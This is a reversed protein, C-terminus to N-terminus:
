LREQVSILMRCYHVFYNAFQGYGIEPVSLESTLVVGTLAAGADDELLFKTKFQLLLNDIIKQFTIESQKADELGYMGQIEINHTVDLIANADIAPRETPVAKRTMMWGTLISGGTTEIKFAKEFDGENPIDRFYTHVNFVDPVTNMILKIRDTVTEYSM